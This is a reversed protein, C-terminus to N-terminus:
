IRQPKLSDPTETLTGLSQLLQYGSLTADSRGTLLRSEADLFAQEADTVSFNDGRGAEFLRQALQLRAAAHDLNRELIGLEAHARRYNLLRQQVERAISLEIVGIRQQATNRDLLAQSLAVREVARNLDSNSSLGLLWRDRNRSDFGDIALDARDYRAVANVDPLLGRHAIRTGREADDLDQLAQAYDLRNNLAVTVGQEPSVPDVAFVTTPALQLPTNPKMGLLEALDRYQAALRADDNELRSLAQGHQLEVRLTDIRTVRGLREKAQTLRLLGSARAVAARDARVQQELRLVNEYSAVVEVVLDAKQNEFRRQASRLAQNAQTTPELAILRGANRFLPQSVQVVVREGRANGFAGPESRLAASLRTGWQLKRAVSVGYVSSSDDNSIIPALEPRVSLRFETQAAAVGLESSRTGLSTLVLSRNQALALNIASTLSLSQPEASGVQATNPLESAHAAVGFAGMLIVFAMKTITSRANRRPRNQVVLV